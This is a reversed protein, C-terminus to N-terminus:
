RPWYREWGLGEKAATVLSQKNWETRVVDTLLGVKLPQRQQSTVTLLMLPVLRM